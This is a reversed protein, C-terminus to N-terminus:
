DVMDMDVELVEVIGPVMVVMEVTDVLLQVLETRVAKRIRVVVPQIDEAAPIRFEEIRVAVV